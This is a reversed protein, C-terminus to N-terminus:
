PLSRRRREADELAETRRQLRECLDELVRLRQQQQQQRFGVFRGVWALGLAFTLLDIQPSNWSPVHRRLQQDVFLSLVVLVAMVLQFQNEGLSRM